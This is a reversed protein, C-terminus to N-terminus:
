EDNTRGSALEEIISQAEEVSLQEGKPMRGTAVARIAKLHDSAKLQGISDLSLGAKPAPGGHCTACHAFVLSPHDAQPKARLETPENALGRAANSADPRSEAGGVVFDRYSYFYPSFPAVPVGVPVAFPVVIKLESSNGKAVSKACFGPRASAAAVVVISAIIFLKFRM